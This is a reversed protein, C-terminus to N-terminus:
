SQKVFKITLEKEKGARNVTIKVSDGFKHKSKLANLESGNKVTKGDFKIIIDKVEIGAKDGAKGTEVDLVEIGVPINLQKSKADDVDQITIGIM